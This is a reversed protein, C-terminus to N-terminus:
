ASVGRRPYNSTLNYRRRWGSIASHDLGLTAAIGRDTMGEQWLRLRTEHDPGPKRGSGPTRERKHRATIRQQPSMGGYMGYTLGHEIAFRGCADSVPCHACWARAETWDPGNNSNEGTPFFVRDAESSDLVRCAAQTAWDTM